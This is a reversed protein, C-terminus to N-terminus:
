PSYLMALALFILNVILYFWPPMVLCRSFASGKSTAVAQNQLHTYIKM